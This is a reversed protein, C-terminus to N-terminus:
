LRANITVTIDGASTAQGIQRFGKTAAAAVVGLTAGNVAGFTAFAPSVRKEAMYWTTNFYPQNSAQTVVTMGTVEWYRQCARLEDAYNPMQWPPAKGTADPDLYLSVDALHSQGIVSAGNTMGAIAVQNGAQWGAVGSGLTTGCAYAIGFYMGLTNDKAWTGTTDGPVVMTIETDVGAASVNFSGLWTRNAAGNRVSLCFIGAVATRVTFRVVIQKAQATGWQLDALRIGEIHQIFAMIDGAALSPKATPVNFYIRTTSGYKSVVNSLRAAGAGVPGALNSAWQDAIYAGTSSSGSDGLEQSHQMAGNVVRNYTEATKTVVNAPVASANVQVWQQSDGDDYLLFTNGTDSEWWLTGAPVGGPPGDSVIVSTTLGAGSIRWSVGDWVYAKGGAPTYSQGPIPSAPFDFPPM